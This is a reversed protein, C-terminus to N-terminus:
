ENEAEARKEATMRRIVLWLGGAALLLMAGAAAYIGRYDFGTDEVIVGMAAVDILEGEEDRMIVSVSNDTIEDVTVKVGMAEGADVFKDLVSVKDDAPLQKMISKLEDPSLSNMFIQRQEEPLSAIYQQKQELTMKVFDSESIFGDEDTTYGNDSGSVANSSGGQTTGSQGAQTTTQTTTQESNSGGTTTTASGTGELLKLLLEDHYADLYDIAADFDDETYADPDAYYENYGQQIATEPFGYSRAKAAVDDITAASANGAFASMACMIAIASFAKILRKKIM